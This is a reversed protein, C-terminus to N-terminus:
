PDQGLKRLADRAEERLNHLGEDDDDAKTAAYVVDVAEGLCGAEMRNAEEKSVPHGLLHSLLALAMRRYGGQTAAGVTEWDKTTYGLTRYLVEAMKELGDAM